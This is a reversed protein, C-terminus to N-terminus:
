IRDKKASGHNRHESLAEDCEHITNGTEPDVVKEKYRDNDRDILRTKQMYKGTTKMLDDGVFGQKRIKDKSPLSPNKVKYDLSSHASVSDFLELIIHKKRSGCNPCLEISENNGLDRKCNSCQISKKM